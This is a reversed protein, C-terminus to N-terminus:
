GRRSTGTRLCRGCKGAVQREMILLMIEPYNKRREAIFGAFLM